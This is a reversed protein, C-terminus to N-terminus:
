YGGRALVYLALVAFVLLLSLASAATLLMSRLRLRAAARPDDAFLQSVRVGASVGSRGVSLALGIAGLCLAALALWRMRAAQQRAREVRAAYGTVPPPLSLLGLESTAALYQLSPADGCSEPEAKCRKVFRDDPELQAAARAWAAAIQAESETGGRVYVSIVGATDASFADRRLQLRWLGPGLDFPLRSPKACEALSGTQRWHGAQFADVICGGSAAPSHVRLQAARAVVLQNAVVSLAGMAVPLRVARRAVRQGARTAHLWLEAEPGHTAIDLLVVGDTEASGRAAAPEPTVASNPQVQLSARPSGVLVAITCRQEPVCAGGRVRVSLADPAVAAPEPQIAGASFQQLARLARGEPIVDRLEARIQVHATAEIDPTGGAAYARERLWDGAQSAPLPLNAELDHLKRAPELRGVLREHATALELTVAEDSLAPGEVDLLHGYRLARVPLHTAGSPLEPAVFIQLDDALDGVGAIMVLVLALAACAPAAYRVIALICHWSRRRSRRFPTIELEAGGVAANAADPATTGLDDTDGSQTV